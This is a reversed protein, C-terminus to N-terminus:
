RPLEFGPADDAKFAIVACRCGTTGQVVQNLAAIREIAVSDLGPVDALAAGALPSGLATFLEPRGAAVLEGWVQRQLERLEQEDDPALAPAQWLVDAGPEGSLVSVYWGGEVVYLVEDVQDVTAARSEGFQFGLDPDVRVDVGARDFENVVARHLGLFSTDPARVLVSGDLADDSGIVDLMQQARSEASLVDGVQGVRWATAASSWVLVVVLGGFAARRLTLNRDAGFAYWCAGIAVGVTAIAIPVRWYFVYREAPGAVRSISWLGTVVLLTVLGVLRGLRRGEPRRVAVGAVALLGFPVLLWAASAPVVANTFSDLETRGGLWPPPLAFAEGVIGAASSLGLRPEGPASWLFRGLREVNPRRLLEHAVVPAWTLVLIAGSWLLPRKWRMAREPSARSTRVAAVVSFGIAVLVLPAYGVHTQVLFTGVLVAFPVLRTDGDAISWSLLVLVGLFPFAISPNWPWLLLAAGFAGYALGNLALFIAVLALGGKRWALAALAVIAAGQLMAGGVLTAWSPRGVLGSLPALTWFMAPGPHNWGFRNYTGILPI